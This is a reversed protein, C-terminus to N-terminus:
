LDDEWKIIELFLYEAIYITWLSLYRSLYYTYISLTSHIYYYLSSVRYLVLKNTQGTEAVPKM